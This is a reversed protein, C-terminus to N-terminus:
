SLIIDLSYRLEGSLLKWFPKIFIFIHHLINGVLTIKLHLPSWLKDFPLQMYMCFIMTPLLYSIVYLDGYKQSCMIKFISKSEWSFSIKNALILCWQFPRPGFYSQSLYIHFINQDYCSWWLKIHKYRPQTRPNINVLWVVEVCTVCPWVSCYLSFSM